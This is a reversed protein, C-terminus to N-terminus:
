SASDAQILKCGALVVHAPACFVAFQKSLARAQFMSWVPQKKRGFGQEVVCVAKKKFDEFGHM